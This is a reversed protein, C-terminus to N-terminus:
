PWLKSSVLRVIQTRGTGPAYPGGPHRAVAKLRKMYPSMRAPMMVTTAQPISDHSAFGSGTTLASRGTRSTLASDVVVEGVAFGGSVLGGSGFTPGNALFRIRALLSVCSESM